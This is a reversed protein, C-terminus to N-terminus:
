TSIPLSFYFTSGQGIHSEVRIIGEHLEIIKKCIPLGLGTGKYTGGLIAKRRIQAFKNFILEKHEEEIGPGDDSVSVTVYQSDSIIKVQVKEKAFRLANSILNNLVQIMMDEDAFVDPVASTPAKFSLETKRGELATNFNQVVEQTVTALNVKKKTIKAKGSELRSLDLLDIVIKNLRSASRSVRNVIDIQKESLPGAIGQRLNSM